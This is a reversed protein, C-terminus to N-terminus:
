KQLAIRQAEPRTPGGFRGHGKPRPPRAPTTGLLAIERRTNKGDGKM